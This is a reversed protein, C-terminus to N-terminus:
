LCLLCENKMVVAVPVFECDMCYFAGEMAYDYLYLIEFLAKLQCSQMHSHCVKFSLKDHSSNKVHVQM